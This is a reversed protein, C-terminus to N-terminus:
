SIVYDPITEEGPLGELLICIKEEAQHLRRTKRINRIAEEASGKRDIDSDWRYDLM